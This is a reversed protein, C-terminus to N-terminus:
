QEYLMLTAWNHTYAIKLLLQIKFTVQKQAALNKQLEAVTEELRRIKRAAEDDTLRPRRRDTDQNRLAQLQQRLDDTETRARREAAM